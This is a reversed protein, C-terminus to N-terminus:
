KGAFAGQAGIQFGKLVANEGPEKDMETLYAGWGYKIEKEEGAM